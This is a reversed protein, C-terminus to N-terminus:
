KVISLVWTTIKGVGSVDLKGISNFALSNAVSKSVSGHDDVSIFVFNSIFSHHSFV